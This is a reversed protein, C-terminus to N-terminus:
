IPTGREWRYEGSFSAATIYLPSYVPLGWARYFVFATDEATRGEDGYLYVRRFPDYGEGPM